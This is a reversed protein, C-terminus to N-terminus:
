REHIHAGREWGCLKFDWTDKLKKCLENLILLLILHYKTQRWLFTQIPLPVSELEDEDDNSPLQDM